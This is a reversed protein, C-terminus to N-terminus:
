NLDSSSIKQALQAIGVVEVIRKGGKRGPTPLDTDGGSFGVRCDFEIRVPSSPLKEGNHPLVTANDYLMIGNKTINNGHPSPM